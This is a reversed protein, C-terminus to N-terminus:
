VCLAESNNFPCAKKDDCKLPGPCQRNPNKGSSDCCYTGNGGSGGMVTKLQTRTLVEAGEFNQLHLKLKKM